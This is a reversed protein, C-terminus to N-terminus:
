RAVEHKNYTLNNLYKNNAFVWANVLEVGREPNIFSKRAIQPPAMPIKKGLYAGLEELCGELEREDLPETSYILDILAEFWHTVDALLQEGEECGVCPEIYPENDIYNYINM